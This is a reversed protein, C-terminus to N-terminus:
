AGSGMEPAERKINLNDMIDKTANYRNLTYFHLGDVGNSLLDACQKTAYEVGITYMLQKDKGTLSNILRAPVTAGCMAVFREIQTLNIAPMIGAVIPVKIGIQRARNVFDYFYHNDFFLQTIIFDAGADVKMKLYEIDKQLSPAEPHGEPYGAVGISFNNKLRLYEVLQYAYKFPGEKVESDKPRDGRLALINDVGNDKLVEIIRDIDKQTSSICTLHMMTNLNYEAQLKITWELTKTKTSGGAGYTISVFDPNYGKLVDVTDFLMQENEVKKPPFFEFSITPKKRQFITSIKM